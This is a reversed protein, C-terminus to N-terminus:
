VKSLLRKIKKIITDKRVFFKGEPGCVTQMSCSQRERECYPGFVDHKMVKGTVPDITFYVPESVLRQCVHIKSKIFGSERMAHHVCNTCVPVNKNMDNKRLTNATEVADIMMELITM